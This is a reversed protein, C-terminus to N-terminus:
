VLTFFNVHITYSMLFYYQMQIIFYNFRANNWPLPEKHLELVFFKLMKTFDLITM